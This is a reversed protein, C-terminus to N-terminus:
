EASVVVPTCASLAPRSYLVHMCDMYGAIKGMTCSGHLSDRKLVYWWLYDRKGSIWVAQQNNDKRTSLYPMM